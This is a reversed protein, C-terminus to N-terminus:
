RMGRGRPHTLRFWEVVDELVRDIDCKITYYGVLCHEDGTPRLQDDDYVYLGVAEGRQMASLNKLYWRWVRRRM